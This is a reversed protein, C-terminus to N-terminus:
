HLESCQWMAGQRTIRYSHQPHTTLGFAGLTLKILGAVVCLPPLLLQM